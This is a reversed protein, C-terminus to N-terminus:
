LHTTNKEFNEKTFNREHFFFDNSELGCANLMFTATDAEDDDELIEIGARTM